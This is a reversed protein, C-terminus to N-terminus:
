CPNTKVVLKLILEWFLGDYIIKLLTGSISSMIESPIGSLDLITIPLPNGLWDIFLSDIDSKIKGNLNPTFDGLNFLSNYSSDNLRNRVSDLFGM